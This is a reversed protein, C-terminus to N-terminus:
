DSLSCQSNRALHEFHADVANTGERIPKVPQHCEPCTLGMFEETRKLSAINIEERLANALDVHILCEQMKPM